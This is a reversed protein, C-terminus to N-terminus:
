WRALYTGILSKYGRALVREFDRLDLELATDRAALDDLYEHAGVLDDGGGETLRRACVMRTRLRKAEDIEAQEALQAHCRAEAVQRRDRWSGVSRVVERQERTILQSLEYRRTDCPAM